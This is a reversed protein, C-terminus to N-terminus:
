QRMPASATIGPLAVWATQDGNNEKAQGQSEHRGCVMELKANVKNGRCSWEFGGAPYTFTIYYYPLRQELFCGMPEYNPNWSTGKLRGTHVKGILALVTYDKYVRARSEINHAMVTNREGIWIPEDKFLADPIATESLDIGAVAVTAGARRLLRMSEVLGLMAHSSRGDEKEGFKSAKLKESAAEGGDSDMYENLALQNSAPTELALILSKGERLISCALGAVYAPIENTGHLEGVVIIRSTIDSLAIQNQPTCPLNKASAAQMGLALMATLLPQSLWFSVSSPKNKIPM